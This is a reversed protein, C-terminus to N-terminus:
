VCCINISYTVSMNLGSEFSNFPSSNLNNIYCPHFNLWSFAVGSIPMVCEFSWVSLLVACFHLPTISRKARLSRRCSVPLGSLLWTKTKTVTMRCWRHLVLVWTPSILSWRSVSSVFFYGIVLMIILSCILQTNHIIVYLCSLFPPM